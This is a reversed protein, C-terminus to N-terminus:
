HFNVIINRAIHGHTHLYRKGIIKFIIIINYMQRSKRNYKTKHSHLTCAVYKWLKHTCKKQWKRRNCMFYCGIWRVGIMLIMEYKQLNMQSRIKYRFDNDRINYYYRRFSFIYCPQRMQILYKHSQFQITFENLWHYFAKVLGLCTVCM